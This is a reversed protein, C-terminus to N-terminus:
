GRASRLADLYLSASRQLSLNEKVWARPTYAALRELFRDLADRFEGFDAFREGCADSFYPVSSARVPTSTYRARNPDLWVGNDWALVPVNSALAEQYALGQTEGECFFLMARSRALLAMYEDRVYSGYRITEYRLGRRRLEALVPELVAAENVDRSLRMKDYVLFDIDKAMARTDVIREVDIGAFWLRCRDGYYPEFMEKMWQCPVLYVRFRPDDMLRPAQAPHDFMGPGLVTPNPLTGRDIAHPYGCLGVPYAPNERALRANNVVVRCGARELATVLMRFAVEFGSVRQGATIAHYVRRAARHLHRDGPLWRDREVDEFFLLVTRSDDGIPAGHSGRGLQRQIFRSAAGGVGHVVLRALERAGELPPRLPRRSKRM